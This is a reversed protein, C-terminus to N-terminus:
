IKTFNITPISVKYGNELSHNNAYSLIDNRLATQRLNNLLDETLEIQEVFKVVYGGGKIMYQPFGTSKLYMKFEDVGLDSRILSLKSIEELCENHYFQQFTIEQEQSTGNHLCKMFNNNEYLDGRKILFDLYLNNGDVEILPVNDETIKICCDDVSMSTPIDFITKNKVKVFKNTIAKKLNYM